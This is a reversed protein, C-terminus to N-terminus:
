ASSGSPAVPKETRHPRLLSLGISGGVVGVVVALSLAAPVHWVDALLMKAGIVVLVVALGASLYRFRGLMGELLFYLATLGLLSFANAALVVFTDRTIAFIAPISDLAFVLDFVAVLAFAVVFPSAGRGSFFRLTRSRGPDFEEGRAMRLGTVVLFAGFVYVIWHLAGLLAAGTAIFGARLVVAGVVGWFLARRREVAGLGLAGFVLAFVFLNDVSLSKELVFGTLYEEARTEGQWAWLLGTFGVGLATWAISWAAASGVSPRRGRGFFVLDVVLAAVIAGALALYAYTPTDM